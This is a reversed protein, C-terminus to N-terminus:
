LEDAKICDIGVLYGASKENKGVVKFALVHTGSGELTVTGLKYGPAREVKESYGDFPDGLPKDDLVVQVIGYDPAKTFFVTLDVSLGEESPVTITMMDGPADARFFLQSGGSWQGEFSEMNQAGVEDDGADVLAV